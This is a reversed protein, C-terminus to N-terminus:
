QPIDPQYSGAPVGSCSLYRSTLYQLAKKQCEYTFRSLIKGTSQHEKHIVRLSPEYVVALGLQRCIEAVSIEEGYLFLNGDLYGGAEFYRRSFIFFSGHPAYIRERMAVSNPTSERRQAALWSRLEVKRRWLWDWIAALPYYSSVIRLQAWRLRGPRRRMFPNQDLNGPWVQIHPAIVGVAKPDLSVLKELFSEDQIVVDNNSVIVWGPLEGRTARYHELGVKAGGFYGRNVTSQIVEVNSMGTASLRLIRFHEEAPDNSVVLLHLETSRKVAGASEILRLTQGADGWHVVIMLTTIEPFAPTM